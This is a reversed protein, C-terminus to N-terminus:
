KWSSIRLVADGTLIPGFGSDVSQDGSLGRINHSITNLSMFHSIHNISPEGINKDM